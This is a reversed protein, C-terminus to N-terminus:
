GAAYAVGQLLPRAADKRAARTEKHHSRDYHLHCWQCMSALNDDRDEGSVHNLHGVTIVIKVLHSRGLWSYLPSGDPSFWHRTKREFWAGKFRWVEAHNPVGCFKCKNGDRELIRPRTQNRWAAGYFQRLEPRIPM